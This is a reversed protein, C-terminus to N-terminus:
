GKKKVRYKQHCNKCTGGLARFNEIVLKPVGTGPLFDSKKSGPVSKQVVPGARPEAGPGLHIKARPAGLVHIKLSICPKAVFICPFTKNKLCGDIIIPLFRNLDQKPGYALYLRLVTAPFRNKKFIKILHKSALLKAKGYITKPSCKAREKQPSNSNGYEVSSGM